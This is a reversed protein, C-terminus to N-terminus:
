DRPSPSTYLLCLQDVPIESQVGDRIVPIHSITLIRLKDLTRKARIEQITGVLTNAVALLIFFMNKVSGVTIVLVLLIVNLLNFFTCINTRLIQLITRSSKNQIVNRKGAAVREDVERQSLGQIKEDSNM